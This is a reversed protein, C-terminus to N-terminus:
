IIDNHCLWTHVKTGMCWWTQYSYLEHVLCPPVYAIAEEGNVVISAMWSIAEHTYIDM